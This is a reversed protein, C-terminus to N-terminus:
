LVTLIVGCFCLFTVEPHGLSGGVIMGIVLVIRLTWVGILEIDESSLKSSKCKCKSM